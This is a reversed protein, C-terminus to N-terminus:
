LLGAFISIRGDGRQENSAIENVTNFYLHANFDGVVLIGGDHQMGAIVGELQLLYDNYEDISANSSPLYVGIVVVSPSGEIRIACIRDSDLTLPTVSLTQSNHRWLIAM